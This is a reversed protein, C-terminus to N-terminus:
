LALKRINAIISSTNWGCIGDACEQAVSSYREQAWPRIALIPKPTAFESQAIKVEKNIWKSYTAYVGSMIIMLHCPRMQNCIADYLQKDTGRTHIPDNRPVSYNRFSFRQDSNLMETLRDYADGYAWSHSIFLNYTKM